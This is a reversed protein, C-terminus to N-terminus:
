FQLKKSARLSMNLKTQKLLSNSHSERKETIKPRSKLWLIEFEVVVIVIVFEVLLFSLM